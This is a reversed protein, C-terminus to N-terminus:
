LESAIRQVEALVADGDLNENGSPTGHNTTYEIVMTERPVVIDFGHGGAKVKALATDNSDYDTITVKVDHEAEFKKILEPNTYNGWNYIHLEGAANATSVGFAFSSAAAIALLNRKM